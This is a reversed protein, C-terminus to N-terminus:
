FSHINVTSAELTPSKNIELIWTNFNEDVMFDYGFMELSNIKEDVQDNCSRLSHTIAQEM